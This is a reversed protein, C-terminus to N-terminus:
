HIVENARMLLHQPITLGLAKATKLNVLLEFKDPQQIPLDAPKAGKLIKDVYGAARRSMDAVSHGYILLGGIDHFDRTPFIAPLRAKATLNVIQRRHSFLFADTTVILAQAREQVMTSFAREIADPTEANFPLIRLNFQGAAAQAERLFAAGSPNDQNALAAVRSLGPVVAALLELRKATADLATSTLGTINAGPRALSAVLGAGVPDSSTSMVIPITRTAQKAPATATTGEAVIVDVKLRVLEEAMRRLEAYDGEAYRWEYRVNRGEVYGLEQMGKVFAGHIGTDMAAQRSRGSLIGVRPGSQGRAPLASAALGGALYALLRRRKM